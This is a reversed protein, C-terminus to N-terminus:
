QLVCRDAYIAVNSNRKSGKIIYLVLIYEMSDHTQKNRLLDCVVGFDSVSDILKHANKQKSWMKVDDTIYYQFSV